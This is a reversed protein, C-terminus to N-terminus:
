AISLLNGIFDLSFASGGFRPNIEFIYVKIGDMKFDFNIGGSYQLKRVIDGFIPPLVAVEEYDPPFLQTKIINPPYKYRIIKWTLIEGCNCLMFAGYEYPHSIYKQVLSRQKENTSSFFEEKAHYLFMGKGSESYPLTKSIVPYQMSKSIQVNELFYVPPIAKRFFSLMFKTFTIKNSLMEYTKVDPFLIKTEYKSMYQKQKQLFNFEHLSMPCIYDVNDFINELSFFDCLIIHEHSAAARRLGHIWDEYMPNTGVAIKKYM